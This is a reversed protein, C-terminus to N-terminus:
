NNRKAFRKIADAEVAPILSREWPDDSLLLFALLDKIDKDDIHWPTNEWTIRATKSRTRKAISETSSNM